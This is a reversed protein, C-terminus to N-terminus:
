IGTIQTQTRHAVVILQGCQQLLHVEPRVPWRQTGQFGPGPMADRRQGLRSRGLHKVAHPKGAFGYHNGKKLGAPHQVVAYFRPLTGPFSYRGAIFSLM